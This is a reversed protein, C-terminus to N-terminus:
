LHFRDGWGKFEPHAQSKSHSFPSFALDQGKQDQVELPLVVDAGPRFEQFGENHVATPWHRSSPSRTCLPAWMDKSLGM